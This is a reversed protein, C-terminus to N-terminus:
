VDISLVEQGSMRNLILPGPQLYRVLGDFLNIIQSTTDQITM